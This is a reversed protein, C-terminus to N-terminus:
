HLSLVHKLVDDIAHQQETRLRGLRRILRRTSVSRVQEIQFSTPVDLGTGANPHALVHMPLGRVKSTGPVIVVMNLKPHHLSSDSVILAPRVFAQEPDAPDNGLDTLWVDGRRCTPETGVCVTQRLGM